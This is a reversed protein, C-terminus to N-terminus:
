SEIEKFIVDTEDKRYLPGCHGVINPDKTCDLFSDFFCGKCPDSENIAKEVKLTHGKYDITEGIKISKM